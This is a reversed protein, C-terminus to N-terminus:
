PSGFARFPALVRAILSGGADERVLRFGLNEPPTGVACGGGKGDRVFNSMYARHRGELVHVGCNETVSIVAGTADLARRHYCTSTWEWINGGFDELGLSNVGYYGRPRPTPDAPRKAAAEERYLRLWRLAPNAPDDAGASPAEGGFREAAAVAMEPATPLRWGAGSVQSFWQAYDQADLWSIGTVPVDVPTPAADAANCAGADVCRQYDALRVQHTMIRFGPLEVREVPAPVPAGGRLFEGTLPYDLTTAAIVVTAVQAPRTARDADYVLAAALPVVLAAATGLVAEFLNIQM